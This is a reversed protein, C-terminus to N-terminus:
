RVFLEAADIAVDEDATLQDGCVRLELADATAQELAKYFWPQGKFCCDGGPPCVDTASWIHSFDSFDYNHSESNSTSCFYDNGVFDPAPTAGSFQCPCATIGHAFGSVAYTWVHRRPSGATISVGDVYEGEIGPLSAFRGDFADNTREQLIASVFLFLIHNINTM